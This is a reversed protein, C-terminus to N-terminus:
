KGRSSTKEIQAIVAEINEMSREKPQRYPASTVTDAGMEGAVDGVGAGIRSQRQRNLVRPNM